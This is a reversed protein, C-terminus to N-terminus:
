DRVIQRVKGGHWLEIPYEEIMDYNEHNGQVWLIKFPLSGLWELEYELMDDKAWLLGFDGCVIVYDNEKPHVLFENVEEFRSFERHTDGTVYIM